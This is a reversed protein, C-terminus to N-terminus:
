RISDSVQCRFGPLVFHYMTEPKLESAGEVSTVRCEVRMGGTM